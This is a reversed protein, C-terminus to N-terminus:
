RMLRLAMKLRWPTIWPKRVWTRNLWLKAQARDKARWTRVMREAYCGLYRERDFHPGFHFERRRWGPRREAEPLLFWEPADLSLHLNHFVSAAEDYFRASATATKAAAHHRYHALLDDLRVINQQGHRALYRVWLDWDMVYHLAPDVGIERVIETRWFTSPQCFVGVTISAEARARLQLRIRNFERPSPDRFEATTGSVMGARPNKAFADAV